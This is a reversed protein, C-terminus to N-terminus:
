HLKRWEWPPMANPDRWVGRQEVQAQTQALKLQDAITPCSSLYQEYVWVSGAQVQALQIAGDNLLAIERGYRDTTITSVEPAQGGLLQELYATAAAGGPQDSEPADVCALRIKREGIAITDGDLIRLHESEARVQWLLLQGHSQTLIPILLLVAIFGARNFLRM